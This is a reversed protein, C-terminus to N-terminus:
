FAMFLNSFVSTIIFENLFYGVSLFILLLDWLLLYDMILIRMFNLDLYNWGLIRASM